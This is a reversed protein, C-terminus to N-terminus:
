EPSINNLKALAAGETLTALRKGERAEFGVPNLKFDIVAKRLEVVSPYASPDIPAKAEEIFAKLKAESMFQLNNSEPTDNTLPSASIIEHTYVSVFDKYKAKILGDLLFHKIRSLAAELTPLVATVTYPMKLKKGPSEKAAAFYHGSVTVAYGKKLGPPTTATSKPAAPAAVELSVEEKAPIPDVTEVVAGGNLEALLADDSKIKKPRAM